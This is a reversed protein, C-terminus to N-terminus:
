SSEVGVSDCKGRSETELWLPLEKNMAIRCLIRQVLRFHSVNDLAKSFNVFMM